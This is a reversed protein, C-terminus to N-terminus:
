FDMYIVKYKKSLIPIIPEFMKSSATNGHLLLIPKGNGVQNYYINQGKYNFYIMNDVWKLILKKLWIM